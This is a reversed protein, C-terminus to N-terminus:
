SRWARARERHLRSIRWRTRGRRRLRVPLHGVGTALPARRRSGRCVLAPTFSLTLAREAAYIWRGAPRRRAQAAFLRCATHNVDSSPRPYPRMSPRLPRAGDSGAPLGRCRSRRSRTRASARGAACGNGLFARVRPMVPHARRVGNAAAARRGSPVLASGSRRAARGPGRLLGRGFRPGDARGCQPLTTAVTTRICDDLEPQTGSAPRSSAPGGEPSDPIPRSCEARGPGM